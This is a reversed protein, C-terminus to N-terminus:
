GPVFISALVGLGLISVVCLTVPHSLNLQRAKGKRRSFFIVNM